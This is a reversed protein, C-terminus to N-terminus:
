QDHIRYPVDYLGYVECIETCGPRLVNPKRWVLVLRTSRNGLRSLDLRRSIDCSLRAEDQWSGRTLRVGPGPVIMGRTRLQPEGGRAMHDLEVACFRLGARYAWVRGFSCYKM